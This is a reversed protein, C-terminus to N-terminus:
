QAILLSERHIPNSLFFEMFRVKELMAAGVEGWSLVGTGVVGCGCRSIRRRTSKM